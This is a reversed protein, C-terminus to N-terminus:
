GAPGGQERPAALPPRHPGPLEAPRAQHVPQPPGALVLAREEKGAGDAGEPRVRRALARRLHGDLPGGGHVADGLDDALHEALVIVPSRFLTTYPFLTSRPPRRIM